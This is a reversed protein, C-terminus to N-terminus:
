ERRRRTMSADAETSSDAMVPSHRGDDALRPSRDAHVACWTSESRITTRMVTIRALREEVANPSTSASRALFAWRFRAACGATPNVMM